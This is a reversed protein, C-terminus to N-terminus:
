IQDLLGVVLDLDDDTINANLNALRPAFEVDGHRAVRPVNIGLDVFGDATRLGVRVDTHCGHEACTDGSVSVAVRIRGRALDRLPVVLCVGSHIDGPRGTVGDVSRAATNDHEGAVSAVVAVEGLDRVSVANLRPVAVLRHVVDRSTITDLSSLKDSLHTAGTTASARVKM